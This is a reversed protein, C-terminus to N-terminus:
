PERNDYVGPRVLYGDHELRRAHMQIQRRGVGLGAGAADVGSVRLRAMWNLLVPWGGLLGTRDTKTKTQV